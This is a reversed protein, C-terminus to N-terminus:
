EETYTPDNTRCTRRIDELWDDADDTIGFRNECAESYIARGFDWLEDDTTRANIIMPGTSFQVAEDWMVPNGQADQPSVAGSMYDSTAGWADRDKDSWQDEATRRDLEEEARKADDTLRGVHNSGDWEVTHGAHVRELLALVEPDQLFAAMAKGSIDYPVSWRITRREAVSMPRGNGIETDYGYALEGDQDLELYAPQPSMQGPHQFLLPAAQGGPLHELEPLTVTLFQKIIWNDIAGATSGSGDSYDADGAEELMTAFAAEPSDGDYIGWFAGAKTEIQYKAM